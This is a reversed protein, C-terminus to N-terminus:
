KIEFNREYLMLRWLGLLRVLGPLSLCTCYRGGSITTVVSGKWIGIFRMPFKGAFRFCCCWLLLLLLAHTFLVDVHFLLLLLPSQLSLQRAQPLSQLPESFWISQGSESGSGDCGIRILDSIAIQIWIEFNGSCLETRGDCSVLM